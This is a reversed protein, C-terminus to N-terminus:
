KFDIMSMDETKVIDAFILDNKKANCWETNDVVTYDRSDDFGMWLELVIITEILQMHWGHLQNRSSFVRCPPHIPSLTVKDDITLNLKTLKLSLLILLLHYGYKEESYHSFGFIENIHLQLFPITNKTTTKLIDSRHQLEATQDIIHSLTKDGEIVNQENAHLINNFLISKKEVPLATICGG